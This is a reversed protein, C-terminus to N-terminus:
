SFPQKAGRGSFTTQLQGTTPVLGPLQATFRFAYLHGTFWGDRLHTPVKPLNTKMQVPEKNEEAQLTSEANADGARPLEPPRDPCIIVRLRRWAQSM